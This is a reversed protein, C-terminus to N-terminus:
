HNKHLSFLFYLKGIRHKLPQDKCPLEIYSLAYLKSEQILFTCSRCTKTILTSLIKDDSNLEFICNEKNSRKLSTYTLLRYFFKM